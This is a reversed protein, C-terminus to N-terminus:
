VAPLPDGDNDYDGWSVSSNAVGDLLIGSQLTFTYDGNNRYVRSVYHISGDNYYGTLLLDMDGDNDYDGWAASSNFVATINLASQETFTNGGKNQYIKLVSAQSALASNGTLFIDLDGDNDYDIWSVSGKSIKVLSIDTQDAFTGNGNNRYIKAIYTSGAGQGTILIDIYGDNDYDGWAASSFNVGTLSISLQETFSNSGNNRYIKSVPFAGTATGTLLIDLDGDNDYDGFNASSNQVGLLNIGTQDTFTNNGNNRFIKSVPITSSTSLGSLIIDLDGDNDYDGWSVSSNYVGTLGLDTQESFLGSSFIGPNAEGNTRYFLESGSDGIYEFVQFSYSIGQSLGVVTTSDDRGSYICYWGTSGIQDGSGFVPDATYTTNNSPFATGTSGQKCFVVRREGNGNKWRLALASNDTRILKGELKSAQISDVSFSNELGFSGGAFINDLAQVSWYYTGPKLDKLTYSTKLQSNGLGTIRRSGTSSAMAVMIESGGAGSGVRVNYTLGESPTENDTVPDWSLITSGGNEEMKLGLPTEPKTNHILIENRFVNSIKLSGKEGTVTIDLDGDNDYDGWAASSYRVGPLSFNSQETFTNNGNNTFIKCIRGSNTDGALLIDLDGDNDYDGWIASCSGPISSTTSIVASGAIGPLTIDEQWTFSNNGNNKYIKTVPTINTLDYGSLLIDLDGDSDYDGWAVSGKSVGTLSIGKQETFGMTLPNGNNRYVKSVGLGTLLIDSFGDNDYDACAVSGNTIRKLNIGQQDTFTGNGNNRYIKATEGSVSIGTLLIDLDGDNDFDSWAVSSEKVGSLIIGTQETFISNGDNRYIKSISENSVNSGTLLIDLDGDNDYDGWAASSYMVGPLNPGGQEIFNNSGNNRYIKSTAGTNIGTTTGTVLLDQFGDNDYDGWSVSGFTVGSLGIGTQEAFMNTQAAAPNAIGIQNFYLPNPVADFEIVHFTYSTMIELGTIVVENGTGNYVCFWGSTGIQSGTGFQSNATYNTLNVPDATGGSGKKAFVVCASGNGRKWHLNVGSVLISDAFVQSAQILTSFNFTQESSFPGAAFGNDVAQVSFYYTARKPYKLVFLTDSQANGMRPLLRSGSSSAMSSVVDGAGSSFGIRVNYSMGNAPTADGPVRNWKIILSTADSTASLGTPSNPVSNSSPINNKYIRALDGYTYSYGTMLFDLKGDKDYDGWAGSSDDVGPLIIGTQETFIDNGDNRFIKAILDVTFNGSRGIILIDPDGDNDYDGWSLSSYAVKTINLDPLDTFTNDGNNRYIRTTVEFGIIGTRGSLMIDLDGDTDYDWWSVSGYAVGALITNLQETFTNDGNNRYLKSVSVGSNSVGTLLIDLNGDNNYDGWASSGFYVGTLSIGTQETFTNDGNNRFIGSYYESTALKGTLLIDLFGDNDYDGWAASSNGVGPLSTGTNETFTNNRNNHYIKSVPEDGTGTSGPTLHGTLLIDLYNDNDYDGWAVSSSLVGRLSIGTQETFTNNGNNRYIKSLAFGTITNDVGTVLADLDGDNDYDGWAMSGQSVGTLGISTQETFIGTTTVLPNGHGTNTTYNPGADFEIVQFVYSAEGELGTVAVSNGTGSYVCYWGTTGIQTGKAFESDATYVTNNVPAASGSNGKKAFVVCSTSNGRNWKLNLSTGEIKSANVMSAQISSSFIFSQETAFPSSGYGNDIAQVSWYYTAKAPYRLVFLTDSQANGHGPTLRPGTSLTMSSVINDAEPSTGIRINYGIGKSSTLDGTSRNWKFIVSSDNVSALLGSPAAPNLNSQASSSLYLKTVAPGSVPAGSLLLDLKGDNDYDCAAISSNYVGTISVGAQETFTNNKNNLYFKSIAGTALGNTSGTIIIDSYGDNDFDAWAVSGYSVGQLLIGNQEEFGIGEPGKNRYVKSIGNGTVLIDLDGDNDYDAWATSSYGAETLSIGTQEIFGNNRNNRFIKSISGSFSNGTLLIDLYGDNDYDGWTASSYIVAPLIISTQETFRGSSSGNNRYVKSFYDGNSSQGTLLIDPLGDKDYDGWAVSGSLLGPLTTGTLESFTHNGNNNHYIRASGSGALLIDLYGDNDYDGWAAASRALGPLIIGTQVTFTNNGNNRYIKSNNSGTLLMDKFGDKDYDGWAVSGQTIPPLIIATQETFLGTQTILPNAQGKGAFYVPGPESEIVYITYFTMAELGTVSVSSGTGNYICYWGSTGIQAGAGYQKDALYITGNVPSATGGSGKRAFVSCSTGNGRQWRLDLSSTQVNTAFVQSAQISSSFSVTKEPAFAGASFGHDVAQVSWYYDAKEPYRLVYFTGSQGNGMKPLLLAGSSLSMSPVINNAGPSTGIRINYTIGASPTADGTVSNWRFVISSDNKETLLGAPVAPPINATPSLNRFVKAIKVGSKNLGTILLDPKGDNSYDGSSFSSFFVNPLSYNSQETFTSNGNNHYFRIFDTTIGTLIIDLHGDSDYDSWIASGSNAGSLTINSQLSFTNDGNNRYIRSINSAGSTGTLLIDLNGDNDYDGWAASSNIVTPLSIGSQELFGNNGNNRYVKSIPGSPSQGTLLIDLYGDNDYDGWAASGSIVGQLAIGSQETFTSDNINRYIRSIAGTSSGNTTGTLLIDLDGDNDYDGWASSGSFVNAIAIKDRETFTNNGNNRYIKSIAGSSSGDKTGTLLIDLDGDNDYDGWAASSYTVGTLGIGTQESFTNDKNNRYIKTVYSGSNGSLLIDLYGDNDYDGWVTSGNQVGLLSIGTQEAFIGTQATIPNSQGTQTYYAPGADYEIVHFTYNTLPDLGTVNVTTGTGTYVCYWGSSGIQTGAGFQADATYNTADVPVATGSSGKLAFVACFSGNGRRWNLNISSGQINDSNVQNAQVLTNFNFSKEAAFSGGKIGHDIAQVSWYYTQKKPNQLILFTDAQVNGIATVLRKGAVLSMPSVVDIAGTTTGIKVNYNMGKAPTADGSVRNWKLILSTSNSEATLGTPSAPANNTTSTFNKYIKSIYSESSEGALLIDLKSDNDYDAWTVSGYSVGPLSVGQQEIFTNNVNNYIKSFYEFNVNRGSILLDLDGDNDHDGWAVSSYALATITVGSLESFSNSGNNRYIKTAYTNSTITAGTLLIDLDGDNDYDGWAVSGNSVAQLSIGTQESFSNDGNNRYIKSISGTVSTTTTGTLLIDLDGDNDYDGWAVSSNQVGTLSIGTQETFGPASGNNKYIKTVGTGLNASRGTLIIDSYGDNNYDGFAVSGQFIGHLIITTQETFTSNGNNLYIRTSGSGAQLIDLYGDNNYDGWVASGQSFGALDALYSFTNNGNNRYIQSIGNGAILIDLDGDNDYDGWANSGQVIEPLSIGTQEGFLVTQFVSPNNQGPKTNYAPGADFEFVQFIYNSLALLGTVTVNSGTGNYVCFWGSTGIQTGSGLQPNATYTTNNVPIANGSNGSKAFVVCGSGNGRTWNVTLSTGQINGAFLQSAQVAASFSFTQEGAFAGGASGNDVAQVSWYYTGKKPFQLIFISDTQTNGMGPLLRKGSTLSMPSVIERGGPTTGIRVNYSIGKAPTADGTVRNWKLIVTTDNPSSLLGSPIGPTTNASAGINRYLKSINTNGQGTLLLDTKGDNDYDGADVSSLQVGPLIVSTQESFINEHNNRYLRSISGAATGDTSGTIIIDLYGDNDFDAWLSSSSNVGPLIIGTQDVFTGNGNNRYVKSYGGGTLLIDLDADNDYDGWKASGGYIGQLVISTQDTFTNNGNNRYIKSYGNGTLLIDLDGDSDYDGWATSSQSVGQLSIATQESFTNNGNNRFIKSIAAGGSQGTLLIDKLGDNNYDGWTVSGYSLGPLVITTQDTFGTGNDNRYIKSVNNGALLIDLDGDNDYDGWAVSSNSVGQLTIATQETFTNNGNNKYIKSFNSGTLLIDLDGDSDYDGWASSGQSVAQLSIATQENFLGTKAILPNVQAVRIDYVPGADFEMAQFTYTTMAELGTINVSNGTGNYVCYWGTTGIQTGSGFAANATYTTGNVPAATGTDTKKAFVVCGAGNGRTWHINIGSGNVIDAIVKSSQVSISYTISKEATFAGPTLGNDIAQVSWYYTLKKPNKLIFLTDSQANGSNPVLRSGNALAMPTVINTGGPTSGVRINYGIGKSPTADGQSRNWRFVISTENSVEPLIAPAQPAANPVIAFNRYIKTIIGIASQGSVIFDLKGDKDYDASALTGFYSGESPNAKETFTNDGNNRFFKSIVGTVSNNTTGSLIIDSYGDNDFDGWVASSYAIGPLVIGTIETDTFSNNRNNRYLKTVPIYNNNDGTILIDPYGDNNYDGWAVSSNTVGTLTIGTQEAFTNDGNNRYIKSYGAGTLLIDLDGDNDYDGWASSGNAVSQLSIGTQETFTNDGNNRYIKSTNGTNTNGTLLLDQDGDNDYDGWAAFVGYTFAPLTIGTQESFTNSGGNRFIKTIYSGSSQGALLFDLDNDNDYDRWAVFSSQVGPLVISTQESFTNNGNNKFIKSIPSYTTNSYGTILLDSYGDNDYDGWAMYSNSVGPLSISTQETFLGTQTYLPNNQGTVTYYAPGADFEIAQFAYNTFPELGTINVETGTGNYVCYWGTTSIQTGSGFSPNATYSSGNLPVATGSAGKRAFVVCASANGRNWRLKIGTAKINDAYVQSAQVSVSYTVSKETAFPGSALGNDIAQVSYYYTQKKPSRLVFLSNLQANGISTVLRLGDARSMSSVINNTGPSTGIRVNYSIGAAPTADSAVKTWGLTISTADTTATLATPAAPASNAVPSYNRFIKTVIGSSSQGSLLIDLKGDRNYDGWAASSNQVGQQSLYPKESFTNNGNNRYIKTFGSGTLLIDQYGDNDYDGWAASGYNIGQLVIGTQVSFTNNGNNRYIKSYGAGTLLIDLDGDSDYDAWTSSSRDAGQLIIGTQDTFTNDGNNRFVKSTQYSANNYGTLLLDLDSDNDYDGWAVSGNGLGPLIIGTQETFTSNGNNHYIKSVPIYTADYGTLLIDLFGDNDYDGWAVSGQNVGYLIIGTQETFTNNGNNRYIKSSPSTSWGTILIDLDGDNDYDGWAAASNTVGTLIIGTQETFINSGDNRYIKSYGYGTVLIDLDSDNDYDGWVVSGYAVGQLTIGTQESFAGTQIVFPNLPAIASNYVPGADYEFAQFIYDTLVELGTINVSIGTGNYVCYWGTTGIQTGSGFSPNATYTTINVPAATGSNAKKAFIVCGTGNGRTWNLTLSSGMTNSAFLQSAQISTSFAISKEAAFLGSAFGNDIAQVSWYYTAKKPKRLIFFNDSYTNGMGPLLRLSTGSIMPAVVDSAGPSTGVRVNYSMGNSPTIDGSVKTWSLTILSDNVTNVLGSPVPPAVNATATNNLYVKSIYVSGTYGTLLFDLKGDKNYDGWACSGNDVGPLSIDTQETFTNNGNNKYIKSYRNTGGSYSSGTLLIDLDGDNDYDAWSVNSSNLGLLTIGTQETFTNNSNNKYIKTYGWGSLLIDLDGDNDYDGWIASGWSITQLSIGTQEAFTGNRNNRYIKTFGVNNSYGTLLLDVYGDNDYDGWSSSSGEFGPLFISTQDTFTNNGNNRYIKTLGSGTLLIDLDGDNDYDAWTASGNQIGILLISTQETFTYGPGGSNRYIRSAGFGALLIDLDGDNDYDGWAASGGYIGQLVISTQETFVNSGDNRYIKSYSNGTLLIDLDGDRDYDGWAVSSHDGVPTLSIGTQEIFQQSFLEFALASFILILSGKLISNRKM